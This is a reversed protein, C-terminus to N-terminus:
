RRGTDNQAVWQEYRAAADQASIRGFMMEQIAPHLVGMGEADM